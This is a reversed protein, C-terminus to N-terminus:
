GCLGVKDKCCDKYTACAADCQCKCKSDYKGCRGQCSINCDAVVQCDKPCNSTNEFPAECKGNGCTSSAVCKLVVCKQNAPCTGCSKSCGALLGCTAGKAKCDCQTQTTCDKPCTKTTENTECKGNGCVEKTSGACDKACSQATENGDCSGDGCLPEGKTCLNNQCKLAAGCGGCVKGPCGSVTGCDLNVCATACAGCDQPCNAKTEGQECKANGCQPPSGLKCDNLLACSTLSNFLIQGSGTKKACDQLCNQDGIPCQYVCLLGVMCYGDNTCADLKSQCKQKLCTAATKLQANCDLACTVLTETPAVCVLDGCKIQAKCDAACNAVNEAGECKGDGCTPGKKCDQPCTVEDEAGECTGDGCKTKPENDECNAKAICAGLKQYLKATASNMGKACGSICANDPCDALCQVLTACGSTAFCNSYSEKCKSAVCKFKDAVDKKCDLACTKENESDDCINNGCLSMIAGADVSAAEGSDVSAASTDASTDASTSGADQEAVAGTDSSAGGTSGADTPGGSTSGVDQPFSGPEPLGCTTLKKIGSPDDPDSTWTCTKSSPCNKLLAWTQTVSNCQLRASVGVGIACGENMTAPDCSQNPLATPGALSPAGDGGGGDGSCAAAFALLFVIAFARFCRHLPVPLMHFLTWRSMM